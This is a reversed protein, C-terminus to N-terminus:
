APEEQRPTASTSHSSRGASAGPPARARRRYRGRRRREGDIVVGYDRLAVEPSVLDRLVDRLVLQPDRELPDGWGGAGATRFVLTDGASCPFRTSRRRCSSSRARDRPDADEHQVGGHRGGNIAGRRSRRATTTSRSRARAPSCTRRRSRGHRRPPPGRRRHRAGARLELDAGPLLTEAYEAPTTRFLPWWSHGDLGDAAHRAPLGGFLLEVFQFYEGDTTTARSSSSRARATARPWRRAGAGEPRARREHLRLLAHPREAPELAAGPVEPEAAVGGPAHGRLRRLDRRQVPDRPRLGHDHLDRLLAQLPGRPHPLQDLRAGADDTGTWDAHCVDGERWITLMMKFPGNGCGTTTSGTPSRSRSRRSTSASSRRWRAGRATSCRTARRRSRRRHRLARLDRRGAARGRPLGGIIALLDTRNM